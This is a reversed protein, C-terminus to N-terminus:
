PTWPIRERWNKKEFFIQRSFWNLFKSIKPPSRTLGRMLFRAEGIESKAGGEVGIRNVASITAIM